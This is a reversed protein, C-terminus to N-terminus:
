PAGALGDPDFRRPVVLDATLTQVIEDRQNLTTSLVTVIGRGPRTRSPRVKVIESEVRLTDGPRTPRPWDIRGGAGVLGGAIPPGSQVQLRMTIAATHWGSAALGAFLTARAAETDLHFPQPDFRRAFARIEDEDLTHTGTSFRQSAHLDDLYLPERGAAPTSCPPRGSSV